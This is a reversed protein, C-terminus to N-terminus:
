ESIMFPIGTIPTSYDSLSTATGAFPSKLVLNLNQGLPSTLYAGIRRSQGEFIYDAHESDEVGTLRLSLTPIPDADRINLVLQLTGEIELGADNSLNLVLQRDGKVGSIRNTNVVFTAVQSGPQIVFSSNVLEYESPSVVTTRQQDVTLSVTVAEELIASLRVTITANEGEEIDPVQDFSLTPRQEADDPSSVLAFISFRSSTTAFTYKEADADYVSTTAPLEWVTEGDHLVAFSIREPGGLSDVQVRSVSTTITVAGNLNSVIDGADNVFYIDALASGAIYQYGAPLEQLTDRTASADQLVLGLPESYTGSDTVVCTDLESNCTEVRNEFAVISEYVDGRESFQEIIELSLESPDGLNVNAGMELTLEFQVTETLEYITDSLVTITVVSALMGAEIEIRTASLSYDDGESATGSVRTLTFELDEESVESLRVVFSADQGEEVALRDTSLTATVVVPLEVVPAEDADIITVTVRDVAGTVAPGSLTSIVFELTEDGEYLGDIVTSIGVALETTGPTLVYPVSPLLEYDAGDTATGSVTLTVTVDESTAETLVIYLTESSGESVTVSSLRLTVTVIVPLEVVPAEDADIITVTVRDVSGTVAPGSLTSIVFELTEDGEYLGDIVTSIGVALETTGPTLVYPVSPLLEYDAGDTAKGSVTLTVTVYESTAETLVIYLTESSGESVTVSSLRLTVTVVVPLEVVPAEDADIITVTVRDVSGTVAPGSLTSIVFELTEDGEYIGDLVTSIGVALETMGPTLVYPVSPLLEYDAGDTATGAVTLTVTVDESTAETLM